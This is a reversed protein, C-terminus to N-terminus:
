PRREYSIEIPNIFANSKDIGIPYATFAVSAQFAQTSLRGSENVHRRIFAEESSGWTHESVSGSADKDLAM